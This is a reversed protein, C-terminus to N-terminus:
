FLSGQRTDAEQRAKRTPKSPPPVSEVPPVADANYPEIVAPSDNAVRNVANSIERIAMLSESAPKCLELATKEDVNACDLWLDFQEPPVIVPARHHVQAMVANAETTVIAATEMEEGNPGM